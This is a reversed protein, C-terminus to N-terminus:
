LTKSPPCRSVIEVRSDRGVVTLSNRSSEVSAQDGNGVIRSRWGRQGKGVPRKLYVQGALLVALRNTGREEVSRPM